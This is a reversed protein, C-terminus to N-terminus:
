AYTQVQRNEIRQYTRLTEEMEDAYELRLLMLQKILDRDDPSGIYHEVDERHVDRSGDRIRIKERIAAFNLRYLYKLPTKESRKKAHYFQRGTSM